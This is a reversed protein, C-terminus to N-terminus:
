PKDFPYTNKTTMAHNVRNSFSILLLVAGWNFVAPTWPNFEASALFLGTVGISAHFLLALFLSGRTNNYVWAFLISTAVLELYHWGIFAEQAFNGKTLWLPLHWLGWLLGLFISARWSDNQFQMRPLAYGRWGPEEGMSSGFLLQQFFFFPLFIFPNVNMLVPPLSSFVKVFPPQAFNPIPSGFLISIITTTLSLLPAWLLVFLYWRFGVRWTLLRKFLDRFGSKGDYIAITILTALSPGIAGLSGSLTPTAKFSVLDYSALCAPVWVVWSILFSLVFFVVLSHDKPPISNFTTM